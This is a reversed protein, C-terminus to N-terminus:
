EESRPLADLAALAKRHGPKLELVKQFMGKARAHLGATKYISGLLFCADVNTPDEQHAALLEKEANRANDPTKLYAQALLVRARPRLGSDAFRITEGLLGVAEWHRGDDFCEKARM